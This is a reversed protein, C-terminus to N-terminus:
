KMDKFIKQTCGEINEDEVIYDDLNRLDRLKQARNYDIKDNRLFEIMDKRPGFNNQYFDRIFKCIRYSIRVRPPKNESVNKLYNKVLPHNEDYGNDKMFAAYDRSMKM